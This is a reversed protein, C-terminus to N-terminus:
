EDMFVCRRAAAIRARWEESKIDDDSAVMVGDADAVAYVQSAIEPALLHEFDFSGEFGFWAAVAGYKRAKRLCSEVYAALDRPVDSFEADYEFMHRGRLVAAADELAYTRVHAPRCADDVLDLPPPEESSTIVFMSLTAGSGSWKIADRIIGMVM